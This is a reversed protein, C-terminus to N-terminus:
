CQGGAQTFKVANWILNWVVQQLRVDDGRVDPLDPDVDCTLAVRRAQAMPRLTECSASVSAGLDIPEM